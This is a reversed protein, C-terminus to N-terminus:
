SDRLVQPPLVVGFSRHGLQVCAAFALTDEAPNGLRAGDCTLSVARLGVSNVWAASLYNLLEKTTWKDGCAANHDGAVRLFAGASIARNTAVVKGVVTRKYDEDAMERKVGLAM